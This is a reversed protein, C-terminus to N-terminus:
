QAVANEDLKRGIIKSASSDGVPERVLGLGERCVRQSDAPADNGAQELATIGESPCSSQSFSMFTDADTLVLHALHRTMRRCPLTMTM